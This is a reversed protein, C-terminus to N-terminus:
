EGSYILGQILYVIGILRPPNREGWCGSVVQTSGLLAEKFVMSDHVQVAPNHWIQEERKWRNEKGLRGWGM